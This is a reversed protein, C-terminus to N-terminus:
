HSILSSFYGTSLDCFFRRLFPNAFPRPGDYVPCGALYHALDACVSRFYGAESARFRFSVDVEHVPDRAAVKMHPPLHCFGIKLTELGMYVLLDFDVGSASLMQSYLHNRNEVPFVIWIDKEINDSWGARRLRCLRSIRQRQLFDDRHLGRGQSM